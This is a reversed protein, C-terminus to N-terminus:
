KSNGHVADIGFLIPVGNPTSQSAGIFGDILSAWDGASGSGPISSGSSFVTGLAEGSVDATSGCEYLGMVRQAAKQELSMQALITNVQSVCPESPWDVVPLEYQIGPAPGDGAGGTDSPVPADGGGSNPQGGGGGAGSSPEDGSGGPQEG